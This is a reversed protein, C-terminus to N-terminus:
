RRINFRRKLEEDRAASNAPVQGLGDASNIGGSAQAAGKMLYPRSKALAKLAAEIAKADPQGEEDFAVGSLEALRQADEPNIFGLTAAQREVTHKLAQAQLRLEQAALRAEADASKQQWQEVESMEATKRKKEAAELAELRKRREASERNTAKLAERAKALEARLQEPTEGTTEQKPETTEPQEAATTETTSTVTTEDAM